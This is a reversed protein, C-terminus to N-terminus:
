CTPQDPVFRAAMEQEESLAAKLPGAIVVAKATGKKVAYGLLQQLWGPLTRLM